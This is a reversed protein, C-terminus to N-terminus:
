GRQIRRYGGAVLLVALAGLAWPPVPVQAVSAVAADGYTVSLQPRDTPSATNRSGFRKANQTANEVGIFIWGHNSSPADVWAQVDQIMGPVPGSPPLVASYTYTAPFVQGISQVASPSGAYDGGPTAWLTSPYIRDTWTSDGNQALVGDGQPSNSAGEGWAALLRHVAVDHTDRARIERLNLTVSKVVSGAPVAALDFKMLMRRNLNGAAAGTVSLWLSAGSGDALTDSGPTGTFISADQVPEFSLTHDAAAAAASALACTLGLVRTRLLTKRM